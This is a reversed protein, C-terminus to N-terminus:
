ATISLECLLVVTENINFNYKKCVIKVNTSENNKNHSNVNQTKYVNEM